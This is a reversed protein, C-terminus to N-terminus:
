HCRGAEVTRVSAVHELYPIAVRKVVKHGLSNKVRGRRQVNIGVKVSARLVPVLDPDFRRIVILTKEATADAVVTAAGGPLGTTVIGGASIVCLEILSVHFPGSM